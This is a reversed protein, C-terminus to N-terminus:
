DEDEGGDSSAPKVEKEVKDLASKDGSQLLEIIDDLRKTGIRTWARAADVKVLLFEVGSPIAAWGYRLALIDAWQGVFGDPLERPRVAMRLLSTRALRFRTVEKGRDHEYRQVLSVTLLAAEAPTSFHPAQVM